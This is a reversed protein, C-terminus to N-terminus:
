AVTGELERKWGSTIVAGGYILKATSPIIIGICALFLLSSSVKNALTSCPSPLPLVAPLFAPIPQQASSREAPHPAPCLPLAALFVGQEGPRQLPHCPTAPAAFIVLGFAYSLTHLRVCPGPLQLWSEGAGV